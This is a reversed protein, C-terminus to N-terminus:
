CSMPVRQLRRGTGRDVLERHEGIGAGRARRGGRGDRRSASRRRPRDASAWGKNVKGGARHGHDIQSLLFIDGRVARWGPASYIPHTPNPQPQTPCLQPGPGTQCTSHELMYNETRNDTFKRYEAYM